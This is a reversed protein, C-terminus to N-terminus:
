APHVNFVNTEQLLSCRFFKPVTTAYPFFVDVRIRYNFGILVSLVMDHIDFVCPGGDVLNIIVLLVDLDVEFSLNFGCM